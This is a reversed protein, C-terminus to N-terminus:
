SDKKVEYEADIAEEEGADSSEPEGQPATGEGAEGAERAQQEYMAKSLAHTAQELGELASKIEDLNETKTKERVTEVAQNVAEKDADSLKDGHEKLLKETEYAMSDAQNKADALERRKKDEEAHLEADKKMSEIESESLGSSQKITIKQETGTGLDKAKVNLIGNEDLDFVVEIQPMGRPAPPIGSLDFEDLLRNDKAMEREGQYVKVTVATQNDAATSFTQKRETPITTNREVLKTMVGGLTEIGLSLPTVDLLLVDSVDGSLVGGQVAAGLAVVEDPNVGKHPEKGFVKKVTELVKPVRTSGGVLIVEDVDSAELKADKLAQLVPQRCREILPDILQEFKARTITQQVHKPGSEPVIIFPLNIDTSTTSSLEKKAKECAEQLRQLATTDKRLDIGHEKEFEDAVYDILAEDFDDGGLHTDGNTSIVQYVSEGEDESLELISIDFTGGGLDFVAIQQNKKKDLGYALAAATPENIIRKVELGAVVGADKTAQRQADNFYAPVTIVASNVKHGLYAEAAEKLKRLVRASIEPPTFSEDGAKIKVYEDAAGEVTYPVMKEEQSVENHRRGMFRKVSYITKNPNTVAQRKAPEGVLVDGKDTFAVVSPTTRNGEANPIVKPESGEMVAVVSNTTGLDIGIIKEGSAM